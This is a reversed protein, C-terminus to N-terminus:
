NVQLGRAQPRWVVRYTMRLEGFHDIEPCTLWNQDCVGDWDKNHECINDQPMLWPNHVELTTYFGGRVNQPM